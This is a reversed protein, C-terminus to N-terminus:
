TTPIVISEVHEGSSYAYLIVKHASDRTMSSFFVGENRTHKSNHTGSGSISDQVIHEFPSVGSFSPRLPGVRQLTQRSICVESAVALDRLLESTVTQRHRRASFAQYRDQSPTAAYPRDQDPRNVAASITHFQNGM